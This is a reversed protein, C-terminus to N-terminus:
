EMEDDTDQKIVLKYGKIATKTFRQGNFYKDRKIVLHDLKKEIMEEFYIKNYKRQDAKSMKSFFECYKFNNYVDKIYVFEKEDETYTDKFWGIFEDKDMMWKLGLKKCIEPIFLDNTTHNNIIFDFLACYHEQYFEDTKYKENLQKYKEPNKNIKDKDDTFVNEFKIICLRQKEAENGDMTIYPLENVELVITADISINTDKEYLGRAKMSSEGTFAKINSMRLKENSGSDAETAKLFRKKHCGRLETNAGEKLPKTLLTLHLIGFYDGILYKFFDNLVGKGNRGEGTLVIFKEKRIGSFGTRLVSLYAKRLDENPFIDDFLKKIEKTQKETPSNYDKGCTTLIYDFKNYSIWKNEELDYAKNNFVFYFRKKDFIDYEINSYILENQILGFVNKNRQNGYSRLLKNASERNKSATDTDEKTNKLETNLEDILNKYLKTIEDKLFKQIIAGKFDENWKNNYYVYIKGYNCIINDGFSQLFYDTLLKEDFALYDTLKGCNKKTINLYIKENSERSYHRVSGGTYSYKGVREWMIEFEKHTTDYKKSKQSLQRGVEKYYDIKNSERGIAYIGAILQFWTKYDDIFKVNINNIIEEWLKDDCEIKFDNTVLNKVVKDNKKFSKLYNFLENPIEFLDEYQNAEWDYIFFEGTEMKYTTGVYFVQAGNGQIDLEIDRIKSPLFKYKDNWKFYLHFGRRTKVRPANLIEPYNMCFENFTNLTDTKDFDLVIIQNKQGTLCGIGKDQKKVCPKNIEQWGTMMGSPKKKWEGNVLNLDISKFSHLLLNNKWSSM